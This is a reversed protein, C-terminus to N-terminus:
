NIPSQQVFHGYTLPIITAVQTWIFSLFLKRALFFDARAIGKSVQERHICFLVTFQAPQHPAEM